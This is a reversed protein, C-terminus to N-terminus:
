ISSALTFSCRYQRIVLLTYNLEQLARKFNFHMLPMCCSYHSNLLFGGNRLSVSIGSYSRLLWPVGCVDNCGWDSHSCVCRFFCYFCHMYSSLMMILSEYENGMNMCNRYCENRMNIFLQQSKYFYSLYSCYTAM